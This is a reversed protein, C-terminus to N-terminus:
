SSSGYIIGVQVTQALTWAGRKLDLDYSRMTAAAVALASV